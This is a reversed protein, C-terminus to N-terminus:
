LSHKLNMKLTVIFLKLDSVSFNVPYYTNNCHVHWEQKLRCFPCDPRTLNCLVGIAMGQCLAGNGNDSIIHAVEIVDFVTPMEMLGCICNNRFNLRKQATNHERSYWIIIVQSFNIVLCTFSWIDAAIFKTIVNGGVNWFRNGTECM